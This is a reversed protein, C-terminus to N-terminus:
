PFLHKVVVSGIEKGDLVVPITDDLGYTKKQGYGAKARRGSPEAYVEVQSAGLDIIWYVPVSARAYAPGKDERDSQLTTDSVEVLLGIDRPRPHSTRYRGRPGRVAAIDPEPESDDTTIASQVRLFWEAPLIAELAGVILDITSDHPPNHGMKNVLWGELLEIRDNETFVGAEIMRHYEDVSIRRLPTLPINM